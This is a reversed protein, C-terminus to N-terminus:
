LTEEIQDEERAWAIITEEPEESESSKRTKWLGWGVCLLASLLTLLHGIIVATSFHGLM